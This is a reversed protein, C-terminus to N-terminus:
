RVTSEMAPIHLEATNPAAPMPMQHDPFFVYSSM